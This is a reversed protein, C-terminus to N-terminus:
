QSCPAGADRSSVEADRTSVVAAREFAAASFAASAAENNAVALPEREELTLKQM